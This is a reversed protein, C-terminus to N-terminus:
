FEQFNPNLICRDSESQFTEGTTTNTCVLRYSNRPTLGSDITGSSSTPTFTTISNSSDNVISCTLGTLDITSDISWKGECSNSMTPVIRKTLEFTTTATDGTNITPTTCVGDINEQGGPCCLGGSLVPFEVPCSNDTDCPSGTFNVCQGNCIWQGGSCKASCPVSNNVGAECQWGWYLDSVISVGESSIQSGPGCLEDSAVPAFANSPLDGIKDPNCQADVDTLTVLDFDIWGVVDDGWAYGSFDDTTIDKEVGYLDGSLSVWGDWALETIFSDTNPTPDPDCNSDSFQIEIRGTAPATYNDLNGGFIHLFYEGQPLVMEYIGNNSVDIGGPIVNAIFDGAEAVLYYNYDTDRIFFAFNNNKRSKWLEKVEVTIKVEENVVFPRYHSLWAIEGGKTNINRTDFEGILKKTSEDYITYYLDPEIKNDRSSLNEPTFLNGEFIKPGVFNKTFTFSATNGHFSSDSLLPFSDGVNYVSVDALNTCLDPDPEPDPDTVIMDDGYSLFRAWGELRGTTENIRAHVKQTGNGEPMLSTEVEGALEGFRLWGVNSSWGYGTLTNDENLTVKYDSTSCNFTNECNMSIWGINSSWAYGSLEKPINNEEQASITGGKFSTFFIAVLLSIGILVSVRLINKKLNM